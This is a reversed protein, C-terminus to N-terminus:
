QRVTRNGVVQATGISCLFVLVVCNWLFLPRAVSHWDIGPTGDEGLARRASLVPFDPLFDMGSQGGGTCVMAM